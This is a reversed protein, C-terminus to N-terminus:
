QPPLTQNSRALIQAIFSVATMFDAVEIKSATAPDHSAAILADFVQRERLQLAQGQAPTAPAASPLGTVPALNAAAWWADGWAYPALGQERRYDNITLVGSAIQQQARAWESDQEEQLEQVGSYDTHLMEGAQMLGLRIFNLTLHQDRFALLPKITLTFLASIAASRKVETDYSDNGFGMLIDPVGFGGAIEDRSMKRLELEGLDKPRFSLVKVDTIAEELVIPKGANKPGGYRQELKKEINDRETQTTGTPTVVAYDPRANNMFLFKEWAQAYVDILIAMRLALLVGVGRWPNRPNFFKFHIFEEPKLIYPADIKDDVEYGRVGYYRRNPPDPLVGFIHPQRPWVEVIKGRGSRVVEWGEEGGLLMDIAWWQWLDAASMTDNPKTILDLAPHKDLRKDGSTVFLPLHDSNDYIIKVAKQVWVHSEYSVLADLYTFPALMQADSRVSMVHQRTTTEPHADALAAKAKARQDIRQLINPM